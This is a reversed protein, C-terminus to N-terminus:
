LCPLTRTGEMAKTGVGRPYWLAQKEFGNPFQQFFRNQTSKRVHLVRDLQIFKARACDSSHDFPSDVLKSLFTQVAQAEKLYALWECLVDIIGRVQGFVLKPDPDNALHAFPSTDGEVGPRGTLPKGVIEPRAREADTHVSGADVPV